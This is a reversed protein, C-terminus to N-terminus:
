LPCRFCTHQCGTVQSWPRQESPFPCPGVTTGFGTVATSSSNPVEHVVDPQGPSHFIIKTTTGDTSVDWTTGDGCSSAECPGFDAAVPRMIGVLLVLGVILSLPATLKM